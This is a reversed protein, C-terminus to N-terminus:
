FKVIRRGLSRLGFHSKTRSNVRSEFRASAPKQEDASDASTVVVGSDQQQQQKEAEAAAVAEPSADSVLIYEVKCGSNKKTEDSSVPEPEPVPEAVKEQEVTVVPEAVKEEEAAVVPEAVKDQEVPEAVKEQEVVAPEVVKEQEQEAVVASQEIKM